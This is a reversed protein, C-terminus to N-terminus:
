FWPCWTANCDRTWQLSQGCCLTGCICFTTQCIWRLIQEWKTEIGPWRIKILCTKSDYENKIISLQEVSIDRIGGLLEQIVRQQREEIEKRLRANEEDQVPEQEFFAQLRQQDEETLLELLAHLSLQLLPHLWWLFGRADLQMAIVHESNVTFKSWLVTFM